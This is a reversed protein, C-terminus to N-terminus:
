SCTYGKNTLNLKITEADTQNNFYNENNLKKVQRVFSANSKRQNALENYRKVVSDNIVIEDEPICECVSINGKSTRIGVGANVETSFLEVNQMDEASCGYTNKIDDTLLVYFCDLKDADRIIKSHLLEQM